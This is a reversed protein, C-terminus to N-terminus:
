AVPEARADWGAVDPVVIAVPEVVMTLGGLEDALHLAADRDDTWASAIVPAGDDPTPRRLHLREVLGFAPHADADIARGFGLVRYRSRPGERLTEIERVAANWAREPTIVNLEDVAVEDRFADSAYAAQEDDRDAFWTEACVLFPLSTWYRELPRDQVYGGLHPMRARVVKSHRARWHEHAAAPDAGAHGRGLYIRHQSPASM